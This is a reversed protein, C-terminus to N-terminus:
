NEMVILLKKEYNNVGFIKVHMIFITHIPYVLLSVQQISIQTFTLVIQKNKRRIYKLLGLMNEYAERENTKTWSAMTSHESAPISSAPM